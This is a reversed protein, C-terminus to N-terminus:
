FISVPIAFSFIKKFENYNERKLRLKIGSKLILYFSVIIGIVYGGVLAASAGSVRFAYSLPISLLFYSLSLAFISVAMYNVKKIGLLIGTFVSFLSRFLM